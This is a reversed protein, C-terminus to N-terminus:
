SMIIYFSEKICSYNCVCFCTDHMLIFITKQPDCGEKEVCDGNREFDINWRRILSHIWADYFETSQEKLWKMMATKGEENSAFHKDDRRDWILPTKLCVNFILKGLKTGPRTMGFVKFITSSVEKSLM